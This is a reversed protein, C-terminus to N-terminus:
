MAVSHSQETEKPVLTSGPFQRTKAQVSLSFAGPLQRCVTGPKALGAEHM